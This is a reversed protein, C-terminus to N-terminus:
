PLLYTIRWSPRDCGSKLFSLSANTSGHLDTIFLLDLIDPASLLGQAMAQNKKGKSLVVDMFGTSFEM